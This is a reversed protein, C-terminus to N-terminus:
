LALSPMKMHEVMGVETHVYTDIIPPRLSSSYKLSDFSLSVRHVKLNGQLHVPCRMPQGDIGARRQQVRQALPESDGAGLLAAVMPLAAGAGDQEVPPADIAAEGEGDRMLVGLDDGDLPQGCIACM